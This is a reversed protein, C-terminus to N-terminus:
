TPMPSIISGSNSRSCCSRSTGPRISPTSWSTTRRSNMFSGRRKKEPDFVLADAMIGYCEYLGSSLSIREMIHEGLRMLDAADRLDFEESPTPVAEYRSELTRFLARCTYRYGHIFGTPSRRNRGEMAAGAYYLDPTTSEWTSSM